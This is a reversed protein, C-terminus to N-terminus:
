IIFLSSINIYLCLSKRDHLCAMSINNTFVYMVLFALCLTGKSVTLVFSLHTRKRRAWAYLASTITKLCIKCKGGHQRICNLVVFLKPSMNLFQYDPNHFDFHIRSQIANLVLHFLLLVYYGIIM